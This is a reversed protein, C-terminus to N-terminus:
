DEHRRRSLLSGAGRRAQVACSLTLVVIAIAAVTRTGLERAFLLKHRAVAEDVRHLSEELAVGGRTRNHVWALRLLEERAALAVAQAGARYEAPTAISMGEPHAADDLFSKLRSLLGEEKAHYKSAMALRHNAMSTKSMSAIDELVANAISAALNLLHRQERESLYEAGRISEKMGMECSRLADRAEVAIAETSAWPDDAGDKSDIAVFAARADACIVSVLSRLNAAEEDLAVLADIRRTAEISAAQAARKTRDGSSGRAVCARTALADQPTLPHPM